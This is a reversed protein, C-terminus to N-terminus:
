FEPDWDVQITADDLDVKIIVGGQIFPILREKDGKVVLVDNSGTELLHDVVGLDVGELTLVKLGILDTWYYEGPLAVPMQDRRIAIDVGIFQKAEDRDGCIALQAVVGKGQVRGTTIKVSKWEGNLRILWPSYSLINGRPDTYSFVKLWGKVGFVGTFRGVVVLDSDNENM